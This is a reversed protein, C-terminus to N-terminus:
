SPKVGQGGSPAMTVKGTEPDVVLRVGRTVHAPKLVKKQLPKKSANKSKTPQKM